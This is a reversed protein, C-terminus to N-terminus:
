KNVGDNDFTIGRIRYRRKIDEIVEREIVYARKNQPTIRKFKTIVRSVSHGIKTSIGRKEKDTYENKEKLRKWIQENFIKIPYEETENAIEMIARLVDIDFEDTLLERKRIIEERGYELLNKLIEKDKHSVIFALTILPKYLQLDRENWLPDEAEREIMKILDSDWKDIKIKENNFIPDIVQELVEKVLKYGGSFLLTFAKDRAKQFESLAKPTNVDSRSISLKMAPKQYIMIARSQVDKKIGELNAMAFPGYMEFSTPIWEKNQNPTNILTNVGKLYRGRLFEELDSLRKDTERRLEDILVTFKMSAIRMLVASSVKTVIQGKFSLYQSM